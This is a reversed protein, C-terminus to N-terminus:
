MKLYFEKTLAIYKETFQHRELEITLEEESLPKQTRSFQVICRKLPVNPNGKIRLIHFAYLGNRKGIDLITEEETIPIILSFTGAESLLEGVGMFLQEFPLASNQRAQDRPTSGSTVTESYFPPNSIILDYSEEMETFFEEFSAHYCFLRDAWPSAEFNEVCQEYAHEDLEIADITEAHSRQALMLAIVGTGSGVDLISQPHHQLSTVAGLLVGDTGVKM